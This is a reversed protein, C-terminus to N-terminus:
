PVRRYKSRDAMRYSYRYVAIGKAMGTVHDIRPKRKSNAAIVDGTYCVFVCNKPTNPGGNIPNM